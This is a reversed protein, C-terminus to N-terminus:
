PTDDVYLLSPATHGVGGRNANRGLDLSLDRADCRKSSDGRSLQQSLRPALEQIRMARLQCLVQLLGCLDDPAAGSLVQGVKEGSVSGLACLAGCLGGAVLDILAGGDTPEWPRFTAVESEFVVCRGLGSDREGNAGRRICRGLYAGSRARRADPARLPLLDGRRNTIQGRTSDAALISAAMLRCLNACLSGGLGYLPAIAELGVWVGAESAAGEGLALAPAPSIGAILDLEGM